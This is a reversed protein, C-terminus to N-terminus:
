NTLVWCLCRLLPSYAMNLRLFCVGVLLIRWKIVFNFGREGIESCYRVIRVFKCNEETSSSKCDTRTVDGPGPAPFDIVAAFKATTYACCPNFVNNTSASKRF